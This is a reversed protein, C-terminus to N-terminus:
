FSTSLIFSTYIVEVYFCNPLRPTELATELAWSRQMQDPFPRMTVTVSASRVFLGFLMFHNTRTLSFMARVIVSFAKRNARPALFRSRYSRSAASQSHRAPLPTLSLIWRCLLQWVSSIVCRVHHLYLSSFVERLTFPWIVLCLLFFFLVCNFPCSAYVHCTPVACRWFLALLRSTLVCNM